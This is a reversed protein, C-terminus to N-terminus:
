IVNRSKKRAITYSVRQRQSSDALQHNQRGVTISELGFPYCETQKVYQVHIM